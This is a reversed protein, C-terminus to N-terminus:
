EMEQARNSLARGLRRLGFFLIMFAGADACAIATGAVLSVLINPEDTRAFRELLPPAGYLLTALLVLGAAIWALATGTAHFRRSLPKAPPNISSM